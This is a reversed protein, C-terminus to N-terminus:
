PTPHVLFAILDRLEEISMTGELGTPMISQAVPLQSEIDALPVEFILGDAGQLRLSNGVGAKDLKLGTLVQGDITVVRWPVYLPGVEKSPHLISELVRRRTMHGSLSTLDPGTSAGRGRHSHCNVCTTRFFVRRGSEPDGGSGVLDNWRDLDERHPLAASHDQRTQKLVREAERRIVDPQRPLAMQNLVMGHPGANRALGAIADARTQLDVSETSALIALQAFDDDGGRAVLMRVGQVGLSRDNAQVIWKALQEATPLKSESPLMEIAMARLGLATTPNAAFELLLKERAPDRVGRAASGNELYAISAVVASFLRPSLSDRELLKRIAPLHDKCRQETAWRLATFAVDPDIDTLGWAILADRQQPSISGPATLEQWRWGTLLAERQRPSRLAGQDIAALQNSEVLGVLAAQRLFVDDSELAKLREDLTTEAANQIRNTEIEAATLVPFSETPASASAKRSLRWVRGKGHVPYSRDAWDTVFVSGDAAAAMAVPRFSADGQVFVEAESSWSAGRSQPRYREIRNDGWSTVWLRDGHAILDCPAEGTGAAMPLTGPLEGNWAQLPHTGARGFRFQFGYDAGRVVHILRCPPMADPDNGVTWLRGSPDITIGFPNWFGTAVRQLDHGDFTCRFINGGEGDGVQKSGDVAILEYPEGLNEGQGVYLWGAADMTLGSLGNHPYTATTKLSLLVERQDAVHDGDSDRIRVLESRTAVAFWGDELPAIAMTAQGQEYFLRKRDPIGDGDSDEIRYIRDTKPGAYGEPPFHTHCEVVMLNGDHDICCGTPTVIEPESLVLEIQWDPDLVQPPKIAFVPQAVCLLLM